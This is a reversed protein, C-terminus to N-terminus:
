APPYTDQQIYNKIAELAMLVETRNAGTADYVVVLEVTRSTTSGAESVNERSGKSGVNAGYYRTAM